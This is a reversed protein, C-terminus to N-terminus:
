SRFKLNTVKVISVENQEDVLGKNITVTLTKLEAALASNIIANNVAPLDVVTPDAPSAVNQEVLISDGSTVDDYRYKVSTPVFTTGTKDKAKISFSVSSLENKEVDVNLSPTAAM